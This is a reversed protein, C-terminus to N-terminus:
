CAAVKEYIVGDEVPNSYYNKRVGIEKYGFAEYLARASENNARVELLYQECRIQDMYVEMLKRAYGKRRYSADVAIRLLDSTSAIDNVIIYGRLRAVMEECDQVRCCAISADEKEYIVYVHNYDYRLTDEIMVKSWADSFTKQELDAIWELLADMRYVKAQENRM